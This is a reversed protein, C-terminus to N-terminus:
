IPANKNIHNWQGALPYNKGNKCVNCFWGKNLMYKKESEKIYNKEIKVLVDNYM